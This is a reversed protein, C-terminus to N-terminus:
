QEDQKLILLVNAFDNPDALSRILENCSRTTRFGTSKTYEKLARVKELVTQAAPSLSPQPKLTMTM